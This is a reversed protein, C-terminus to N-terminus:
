HLLPFLLKYAYIKRKIRVHYPADLEGDMKQWDCKQTFSYLAQFPWIPNKSPLMLSVYYTNTM